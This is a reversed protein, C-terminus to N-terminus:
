PINLVPRAATKVRSATVLAPMGNAASFCVKLYYFYNHYIRMFLVAPLNDAFLDM